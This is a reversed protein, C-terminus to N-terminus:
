SSFEDTNAGDQVSDVLARDAAEVAEQVAAGVADVQWHRADRRLLESVMDIPESDDADWLTQRLIGPTMLNEQPLLMKEAVARVVSRAADLRAAAAPRHRPWSRPPPPTDSRVRLRPLDDTARGREIAAWWRDLDTSARRGNFEKLGILEGKSRPMALAAASLAADPMLRGPARDLSQALDDRALWLERAVALKRPDKLKHLGNLRRWPEAPAPKPRRVLEFGFEERAIARKDQQLLEDEIADRVDVLLEVDLAAYELWEAPLPRTSWDSNSHEKRLHVGLTREVVAQLGVREFGALRAGLETDFLSAPELRLERLSPLDQSAAHLVWETEGVAGQVSEFNEVAVPDFLFTGAGRRFMQVLYARHSYRFGNAREVDVAVPGHGSALSEAAAEADDRSEILQLPGAPAATPLEAESM